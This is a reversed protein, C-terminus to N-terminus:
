AYSFIAMSSFGLGLNETGMRVMIVVKVGTLLALTFYTCTVWLLSDNFLFGNMALIEKSILFVQLILAKGLSM